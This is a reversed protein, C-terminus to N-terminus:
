FPQDLPLELPPRKSKTLESWQFIDLSWHESLSFLNCVSIGSLTSTAHGKRTTASTLLVGETEERQVDVSRRVWRRLKKSAVHCLTSSDSQDAM